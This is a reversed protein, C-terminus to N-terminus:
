LGHNVAHTAVKTTISVSKSKWIKTLKGMVAMGMTVKAADLVTDKLQQWLEDPTHEDSLRELEDFRNTVELRYDQQKFEDNNLAEIDVLM